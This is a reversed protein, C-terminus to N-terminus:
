SGSNSVIDTFPKWHPDDKKDWAALSDFTSPINSVADALTDLFQTDTTLQQVALFAEQKHKSGTPIFVVTGQTNGVGYTNAVSDLVPMPAVGYDLDPVADALEGIHWEGAYAMATVGTDFANKEDDTHPQYAGMFKKVENAGYFDLLYKDWRLFDAWKPDSAFTAKGDSDYFKSGNHVGMFMNANSDYDNRPIFGFTKISGDANKVTLKKADGTLESLTKPPSSIGADAFM